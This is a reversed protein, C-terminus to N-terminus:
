AVVAEAEPQGEAIAEAQEVVSQPMAAVAQAIADAIAKEQAEHVPIAAKQAKEVEAKYDDKREEMVKGAFAQLSATVNERVMRIHGNLVPAIRMSPRGSQTFKVTGDKAKVLRLPAGLEDSPVSTEAMVNTATFFPVWTTELDISWVKRSPGKKGNGQQLLSKIYSPTKM